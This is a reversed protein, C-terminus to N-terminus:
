DLLGELHQRLRTLVRCKAAYVTGVRIGLVAAVTAAPRGCVVYQWCAQWTTPDFDTQMLQLAREVLDRRYEAEDFAAITEEGAVNDLAAGNPELPLAARRHRERWKNLLITRLWGRFTKQRDYHFEPLNQVLVVFVDQVLDAAEQQQAGHRRAWYFLLPTYLQVFRQWAAQDGPRRLQELLSVPTSNM